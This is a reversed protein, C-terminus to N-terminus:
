MYDGLAGSVCQNTASRASDEMVWIEIALFTVSVTVSASCTGPQTGDLVAHRNDPLLDYPMGFFHTPDQKDLQWKKSASHM